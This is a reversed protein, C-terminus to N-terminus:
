LKVTSHFLYVLICESNFVYQALPQKQETTFPENEASDAAELLKNPKLYLSRCLSGPCALAPCLFFQGHKILGLTALTNVGSM